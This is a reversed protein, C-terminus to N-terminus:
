CNSNVLFINLTSIKVTTKLKPCCLKGNEYLSGQEQALLLNQAESQYSPTTQTRTMICQEMHLQHRWTCALLYILVLQKAAPTLKVATLTLVHLEQHEEKRTMKNSQRLLYPHQDKLIKKYSILPTFYLLWPSQGLSISQATYGFIGKPLHLLVETMRANPHM